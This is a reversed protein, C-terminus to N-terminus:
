DLMSDIYGYITEIVEVIKNQVEISPFPILTNAFATLSIEKFTTGSAKKIIDPTAWKLAYYVYKLNGEKLTVSLCGQNTSYEFPVINLHGIPARKSYVISNASVRKASSEELGRLTIEREVCELAINEQNKGMEAPTIWPIGDGYYEAVSTKPTGGSTIKAIDGIKVMPLQLVNNVDANSVQQGDQIPTLTAQFQDEVAFQLVKKKLSESYVVIQNQADEIIHIMRILENYSSIIRKQEELPPLPILLTSLNTANVNPQGTGNSLKLLQKWYEKSELFLSIFEALEPIVSRFLM